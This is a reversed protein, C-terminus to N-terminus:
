YEKNYFEVERIDRAIPRVPKEFRIYKKGCINIVSYEESYISNINGPYRDPWIKQILKHWIIFFYGGSMSFSVPELIINFKGENIKEIVDGSYPIVFDGNIKAVNLSDLHLTNSNLKDYTEAKCVNCQLPLRMWIDEIMMDYPHAVFPDILPNDSHWDEMRATGSFYESKTQSVVDKYTKWSEQFPRILFAQHIVILTAVVLGIREYLQTRASNNIKDNMWRLILILSFVEVGWVARGGVGLIVVIGLSGLLSLLFFVNSQVYLKLSEKKSMWLYCLLAILLYFCRGYRFIKFSTVIKAALAQLLPIEAGGMTGGIRTRTGPSVVILLSGIWYAVILGWQRSTIDKSRGKFIGYVLFCFLSFSIPLAFIEHTWGALFSFVCLPVYKYWQTRKEGSNSLVKIFLLTLLCPWLYHCGGGAWYFNTSHDPSLYLMAIVMIVWPLISKKANDNLIINGLLWIVGAFTLTIFIDYCLEGGNITLQWIAHNIARGNQTLWVNAQDSFFDKIGTSVSTTDLNGIWGIDDSFFPVFRNQIFFFLLIVILFFLFVISHNHRRMM